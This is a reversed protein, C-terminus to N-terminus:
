GPSVEHLNPGPPPRSLDLDDYFVATWRVLREGLLLGARGLFKSARPRWARHPGREAWGGFLRGAGQRIVRPLREALMAGAFRGYEAFREDGGDSTLAVSVSQRALRALVDTPVASANGFPGDHHWALREILDGTAPEVVFETHSTRFRPAALWAYSREDDAPAGAFGISFTRIPEPTLRSMVGVVITSDLGGSLFAGVLVDAM